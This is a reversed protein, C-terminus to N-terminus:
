KVLIMKKSIKLAETILTYFYVGSSLHDAEFLVSYNGPEFNDNVLTTVERGLIDSVLIKVSGASPVAFKIKTSPNFPNPFNQELSFESPFIGEEQEVSTPDFSAVRADDLFYGGVSANGPVYTFQFSDFTLPPELIGNGIWSGVQGLSLDWTVLKWGIWNVDYWPSVEHGGPGADNVAFRFKNNKGDGFLYVQLLSNNDFTPGAILYYERILWQLASTEWAYDLLMSKTSGTLLNIVSSSSTVKTLEPIVGMTSGSATPQWWNTIGNEFNDISGRLNYNSGGTAFVTTIESAIANGFLDQVGPLLKITYSENEALNSTIFLNLVSKGSIAYHRLIGTANTQNSNRVVFFKGSLTSTNVVENFTFSVIPKVEVNTANASPYVDAMLPAFVDEVKTKISFTYPDGGIGDGNGDFLHGFKGLANGSITVEYTSSYAFNATNISLTKDLNSWTYSVAVNPNFSINAQVSAKDMQRSFNIILSENGPYLSDNPLPSTSLVKPPIQSVMALDKFTFFTDQMTVFATLTDYGPFTATIPISGLGQPIGEFYYFGNRLLDPNTSYQHFLSAYTDTTDTQGNISVIAGNLAQGSELDSIIGTVTGAFPRAAQKYKLISWFFTKAELRKWLENMNLTNQRPNTHFGAESLQSAMTTARNVHLYPTSGAVGYFTRDGISGRTTTRMGSTLLGVMIDSMAKGGPPFKEPGNIGLQGWMVLTSNPDPSSSADSHISHYHAAALANALDTRQTLSVQVFDDLRCMYVTDIDTWDLLMQRLHLAVRLNKKAESYGYIGVNENQSHGPDLFINWGSLGTVQQSFTLPSVVLLMLASSTILIKIKNVFNM